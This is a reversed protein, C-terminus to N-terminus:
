KLLVLNITLNTCSRAPIHVSSLNHHWSNNHGRSWEQQHMSTYTRNVVKRTASPQSFM